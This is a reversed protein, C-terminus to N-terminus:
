AAPLEVDVKIINGSKDLQGAQKGYTVIKREFWYPVVATSDTEPNVAWGDPAPFPVKAKGQRTRRIAAEVASLKIGLRVGASRKSLAPGTGMKPLPWDTPGQKVSVTTSM